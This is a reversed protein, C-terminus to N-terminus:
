YGSTSVLIGEENYDKSRVLKGDQYYEEKQLVSSPYYSRAWSDLKGYIYNEIKQIAGNEYYSNRKGNLEGKNYNMESKVFFQIVEKGFLFPLFSKFMIVNVASRNFIYYFRKSNRM